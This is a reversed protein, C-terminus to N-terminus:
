YYRGTACQFPRCSEHEYERTGLTLALFFLIPALPSPKTSIKFPNSRFLRGLWGLPPIRDYIYIGFHDGDLLPLLYRVCSKIRDNGEIDDSNSWMQLRVLLADRRCPVFSRSRGCCSQCHSLIQLPPSPQFASVNIVLQVLVILLGIVQHYSSIRSHNRRPVTLTGQRGARASASAPPSNDTTSWLVSELPTQPRDAVLYCLLLPLAIRFSPLLGANSKSLGSDLFREKDLPKSYHQGPM